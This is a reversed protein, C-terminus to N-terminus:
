GPVGGDRDSAHGREDIAAAAQHSAVIEELEARLPLCRIKGDCLRGLNRLHRAEIVDSPVAGHAVGATM